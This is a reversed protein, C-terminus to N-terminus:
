CSPFDFSYRFDKVIFFCKFFYFNGQALKKPLCTKELYVTTSSTRLADSETHNAASISLECGSPSYVASASFHNLLLNFSYFYVYWSFIQERDCAAACEERTKSPSFGVEEGPNTRESSEFQVYRTVEDPGCISLGSKPVNNRHM